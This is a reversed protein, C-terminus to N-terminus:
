SSRIIIVRNSYIDKIMLIKAEENTMHRPKLLVAQKEYKEHENAFKEYGYFKYNQNVLRNGLTEKAKDDIKQRKKQKIKM